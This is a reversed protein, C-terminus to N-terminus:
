GKLVLRYQTDDVVDDDAVLVLWDCHFVASPIQYQQDEVVTLGALENNSADRITRLTGPTSQDLTERGAFPAKFTLMTVDGLDDNTYISGQSADGIYIPNSTDGGNFKPVVSHEYPTLSSM